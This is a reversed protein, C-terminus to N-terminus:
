YHWAEMRFQTKIFHCVEYPTNHRLPKEPLLLRLERTTPATDPQSANRGVGASLECDNAVVKWHNGNGLVLSVNAVRSSSMLQLTLLTRCTQRLPQLHRGKFKWHKKKKKKKLASRECKKAPLVCLFCLCSHECVTEAGEFILLLDGPPTRM